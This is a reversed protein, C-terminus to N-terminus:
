ANDLLESLAIDQQGGQDGVAKRGVIADLDVIRASTVPARGAPFPRM